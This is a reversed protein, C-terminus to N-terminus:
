KAELVGMSLRSQKVPWNKHCFNSKAPDPVKDQVSTSLNQDFSLVMICVSKPCSCIGLLNRSNRSDSVFGNRFAAM